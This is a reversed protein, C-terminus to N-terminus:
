TAPPHVGAQVWFNRTEVAFPNNLRLAVVTARGCTTRGVIQTGDVNWRFHRKWSQMRPNFMAVKRGTHPDVAYTQAGKYRNCPRCSLWLNDHENTGGEAVPTIHDVELTDYALKQPMQCYGCRNQTEARLKAKLSPSIVGPTM